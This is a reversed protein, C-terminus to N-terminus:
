NQAQVPVPRCPPVTTLAAQPKIFMVFSLTQYSTGLDTSGRNKAAFSGPADCRSLQVGSALLIPDPDRCQEEQLFVSESQDAFLLPAGAALRGNTQVKQVRPSSAETSRPPPSLM